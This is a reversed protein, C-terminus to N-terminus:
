GVLREHRGEAAVTRCAAGIAGPSFGARSLRPWLAEMLERESAWALRASLRRALSTAGDVEAEPGSGALAGEATERDVGKSALEAAVARSGRSKRRRRVLSEAFAQDDLYGMGVLREIAGAIEEPSHRRRLLKLRLEDRSHARRALLRLGDDLATHRPATSRSTM